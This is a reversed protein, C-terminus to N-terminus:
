AGIASFKAVLPRAYWPRGSQRGIGSFMHLGVLGSSHIRSKKPGFVGDLNKIRNM